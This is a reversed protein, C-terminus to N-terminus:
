SASRRALFDAVSTDTVTDKEIADVIRMVRKLHKQSDVTKNSGRNVKAQLEANSRTYYHNLQIAANSYFAKNKRDDLQALLGVDNVTIPANEIDFGHVRVGTVKCPDVICKWNLAHESSLPDKMRQTYNALIGGAPPKEHGCRGFMHWPLSIQAKDALPALADPISAEATPVLFEDVDIFAMWRYGAGFNRLCHAYALVQNHIEAKSRGDCLKQDWPLITVKDGLADRIIPVTKDSSGNDYVFIHDVGARIHFKAWEGIHTEEDKVILCIALPARTEFPAPPTLGIKSITRSKWFM